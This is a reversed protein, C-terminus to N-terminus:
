KERELSFTKYASGDELSKWSFRGNEYIMYSHPSGEKPISTSGPNLYLVGEKEYVLPVHTHGFFVVDGQKVAPPCDELHHGHVACIKQGDFVFALSKAMIPFDLVMQDVEADCNGGVCLLNEKMGNLLAIVKKPAYDLPLDNRPGHYLLDGLLLLKDAQEKTFADAMQKAFAFSGHIDSAIMLKM